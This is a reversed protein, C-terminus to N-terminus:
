RTSTKQQVRRSKGLRKKVQKKDPKGRSGAGKSGFSEKSNRKLGRKQGGFGYKQDKMQRKRSAGPRHGANTLNKTRYEEAIEKARRKTQSREKQKEGHIKKAVKRYERDKKRKDVAEMKQKELLLNQKIRGMHKDSKVMEAFFDQPRINLKPLKLRKVDDAMRQRAYKVSDLAQKYFSIERKLDDEIDLIVSSAEMRSTVSLTEDFEFNSTDLKFDELKEVLAEKKDLPLDQGELEAKRQQKRIAEVDGTEVLILNKKTKTVKEADAEDASDDSEDYDSGRRARLIASPIASVDLDEDLDVESMAESDDEEEEEEVRKSKRKNVKRLASMRLTELMKQNEMSLNVETEEAGMDELRKASSPRSRRGKKPKGMSDITEQRDVHVDGAVHM